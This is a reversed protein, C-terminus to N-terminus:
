FDSLYFRASHRVPMSWFYDGLPTRYFIHEKFNQLIWLFLGTGSDRKLYLQLSLSPNTFNLITGEKNKLFFYGFKALYQEAHLSFLLLPQYQIQFHVIYQLKIENTKNVQVLLVSFFFSADFICCFKSVDFIKTNWSKAKLKFILKGLNM